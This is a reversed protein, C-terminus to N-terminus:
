TRREARGLHEAVVPALSRALTLNETESMDSVIFVAHRATEFCSVQYGDFHSCSITQNDAARTGDIDGTSHVGTETETVLLSVLRGHHKLVIHAFRRGEYVCSHAEVLSVDSAAPLTGNVAIAETLCAYASDYQRSAEALSVPTEPLNYKVACHQHDDAAARALEARVIQLPKATGNAVVPPGTVASRKYRALTFTFAVLFCAAALWLNRPRFIVDTWTQNRRARLAAGRGGSVTALRARVQRVFEPRAQMAPANAFGARLKDRVARRAGLERRCLACSELHQLVDHNTEVLLEDGLYSDALELFERCKM